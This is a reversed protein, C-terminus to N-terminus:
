RNFRFAAAGGTYNLVYNDTLDLSDGYTITEDKLSLHFCLIQQQKPLFM